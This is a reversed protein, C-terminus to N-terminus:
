DKSKYANIIWIIAMVVLFATWGHNEIAEFFENM